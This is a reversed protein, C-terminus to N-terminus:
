HITQSHSKKRGLNKDWNGYIFEYEKWDYQPLDLHIKAFESRQLWFEKGQIRIKM